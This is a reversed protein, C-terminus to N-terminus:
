RDAAQPLVSPSALKGSSSCPLTCSTPRCASTGIVTMMGGILGAYSLPILLRSVPIGTRRSVSSVVPILAAVVGANSLIASLLGAVLVLRVVLLPESIDTQDDRVLLRQGLEEALGWKSVSYGFVYMSAVLIVAPSAFGAYADHPTLVGTAALSVVVLLAVVDYRLRDTIFLILSGALVALVIWQDPTLSPM